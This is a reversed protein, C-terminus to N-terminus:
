REIGPVAVAFVLSTQWYPAGWRLEEDALGVIARPAAFGVLSEVRLRLVSSLEPHVGLRLFPLTTLATPSRGEFPAEARGDARLRVLAAGAGLDVVWSTDVLRADLAAGFWEATAEAVAEGAASEVSVDQPRLAFNGIVGVSWFDTPELRLALQARPAMGIEFDGGFTPALELWLLPVPRAEALAPESSGPFWGPEELPAVEPADFTEPLVVGMELLRARLAEVARLALLDDHRRRGVSVLDELMQPAGAESRRVAIVLEIGTRSPTARLLADAEGRAALETLPRAADRGTVEVVHYGLADLEAALRMAIVHDGRSRVLAVTPAGGITTEAPGPATVEHTRRREMVEEGVDQSVIKEAGRANQAGLCVGCLVLAAM